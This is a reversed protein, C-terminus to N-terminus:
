LLLLLLVVPVMWPSLSLSSAQLQPTFHGILEVEEEQRQRAASVGTQVAGWRRRRWEQWVSGGGQWCESVKYDLWRGINIALTGWNWCVKPFGSNSCCGEKSTCYEFLMSSHSCQNSIVEWGTLWFFHMLTRDVLNFFHTSYPGILPRQQRSLSGALRHSAHM